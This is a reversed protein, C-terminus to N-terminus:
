PIRKRIHQMAENVAADFEESPVDKMNRAAEDLTATMREVAADDKLEPAAHSPFAMVTVEEDPALSRGLLGELWTKVSAQLDGARQSAISDM